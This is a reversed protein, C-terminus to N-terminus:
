LQILARTTVPTTVFACAITICTMDRIHARQHVSGGTDITNPVRDDCRRSQRAVRHGEELEVLGVYKDQCGYKDNVSKYSENLM